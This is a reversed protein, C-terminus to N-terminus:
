LDVDDEIEEEESSTNVTQRKFSNTSNDEVNNSTIEHRRALLINGLPPGFAPVDSRQYIITGRLITAHVVGRLTRNLYPTVKHQFEIMDETVTFSAEPDWVCIDGDYGPELRSKRQELGSLRAPETCLLRVTDELTLGYQQCHTWFLPLGLQLSSIGGWAKLFNGRQKGDTLLKMQPTSPSHDSVVLDIEGAQIARWLQEQNTRDRIPPCCKFETRADPVDEAALALYHHCTEVTLRGGHARARRITPLAQASSLHVIHTRVNYLQAVRAVLDIAQQEMSDPRSELFTRYNFPDSINNSLNDPQQRHCEVEAHF